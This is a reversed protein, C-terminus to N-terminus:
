IWTVSVIGVCGFGITLVPVIGTISGPSVFVTVNLSKLVSGGPSGSFTRTSTLGTFPSCVVEFLM